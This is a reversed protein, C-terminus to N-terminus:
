AFAFHWAVVGLIRRKLGWFRFKRICRRLVLNVGHVQMHRKVSTIAEKIVVPFSPNASENTM